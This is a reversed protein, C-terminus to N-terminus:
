FDVKDAARKDMGEVGNISSQLWRSTLLYSQKVFDFVQNDTWTDDRFRYDSKKPTIVPEVDAGLMRQTSTEWLTVYDGWLNFSQEM